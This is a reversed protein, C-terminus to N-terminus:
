DCRRKVLETASVSQLSGNEIVGRRKTENTRIENKKINM